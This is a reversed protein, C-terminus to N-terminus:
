VVGGSSGLVSMSLLPFERCAADKLEPARATERSFDAESFHSVAEMCGEGHLVQAEM